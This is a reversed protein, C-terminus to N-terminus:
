QFSTHINKGFWLGFVNIIQVISLILLTFIFGIELPLGFSFWASISNDSLHPLANLDTNLGNFSIYLTYLAGLFWLIAIAGVGSPRNPKSLPKETIPVEIPQEPQTKITPEPKHVRFYNYPFGKKKVM